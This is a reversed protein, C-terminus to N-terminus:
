LYINDLHVLLPQNRCRDLSLGDCQLCDGAKGSVCTKKTGYGFSVESLHGVPPCPKIRGEKSLPYNYIRLTSIVKGKRLTMRNIFGAIAPIM